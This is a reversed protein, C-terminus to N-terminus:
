QLAGVYDAKIIAGGSLQHSSMWINMSQFYLIKAYDEYNAQVSRNYM